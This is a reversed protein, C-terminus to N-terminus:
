PCTTVPNPCVNATRLWGTVGNYSVQIFGCTFGVLKVETESPITGAKRSNTRPETYLTAPKEYKGDDGKTGTAVMKASVWGIEDFIKEGDFNEARAIKLWGNSYGVIYVIVFDMETNPRTALRAIVKANVNPKARVNLGKPDNDVVWGEVGCSAEERQAFAPVFLCLLFLSLLILTRIKM